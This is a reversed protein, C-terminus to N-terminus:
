GPAHAHHLHLTERTYHEAHLLCAPLCAPLMFPCSCTASSCAQAEPTGAPDLVAHSTMGAAVHEARRVCKVM